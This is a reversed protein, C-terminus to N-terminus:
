FYEMESVAEKIANLYAYGYKNDPELYAGESWENWANVFLYENGMKNSKKIQKKVYEKFKKPTSNRIIFGSEDKRATNDWGVFVGLYHTKVGNDYKRNKSLRSIFDYSCINDVYLSNVLVNESIGKQLFKERRKSRFKNLWKPLDRLTRVPEFDVVANIKKPFQLVRFGTDMAVFHIGSFGEDRAWKNWKTIMRTCEEIDQSLYILFVPCNNVKIYKEDKFFPLLYDFHDKWEKEKGYTKQLLIENNGDKGYWTRAFSQNAWALCYPIKNKQKLYIEVPKELLKKGMFYYHYFCFGHIKYKTALRAQTQLVDPNSLDYYNNNLPVKPQYHGIYLKRGRKVNTWETFGKGWWKNNEEIEHYQPLYFALLKVEKRM